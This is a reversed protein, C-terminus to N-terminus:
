DYITRNNNNLQELSFIKLLPDSIGYILKITLNNLALDSTSRMHQNKPLTHHVTDQCNLEWIMSYNNVISPPIRSLDKLQTSCEKSNETTLM